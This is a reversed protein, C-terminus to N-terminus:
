NDNDDQQAPFFSMDALATPRYLTEHEMHPRRMPTYQMFVVLDICHTNLGSERVAHGVALYM